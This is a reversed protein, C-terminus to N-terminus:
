NGSAYGDTLTELFEVLMDIEDDDLAPADGPQRNYPTETVNVNARYEPPLDDFKVVQGQADRPYWLEPQTDRTVYFQVVERLTAFRGNHFYPATLAVNRLTPVKFKGCQRPDQRGSSEQACLGLDFHDSDANAPINMNRPVGLADYSFDTFLPPTRASAGTSTHCAACNGKTPDNFLVYGRRERETLPVKGARWFDFKSSFPYFNARDQLEFAALSAAIKDYAKDIDDFVSAGWVATFAQAYSAGRVKAVYGAKDANAMENPNLPPGGAQASLTAARGDHFFGGVPGADGRLSFKPGYVSYRITPANRTGFRGASVGQSVGMAIALDHSDTFARAPDHCSACSQGAPQSLNADFFIARGLAAIPTPGDYAFAADPRLAGAALLAAVVFSAVALVAPRPHSQSQM